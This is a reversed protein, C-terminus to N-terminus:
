PAEPACGGFHTLAHWTPSSLVTIAGHRGLPIAQETLEPVASRAAIRLDPFWTTVPATQTRIRTSARGDALMHATASGARPGDLTQVVAPFWAQVRPSTRVWRCAGTASWAIIACPFPELECFRIAASTLSTRFYTAVDIIAAADPEPSRVRARFSATPLMLHNAFVDAEYEHPREQHAARFLISCNPHAKLWIRHEDIVYHGLEHALTFVGQGADFRCHEANVYIHFDVGDFEILGDFSSGYDGQSWTLDPIAEIIRAPDVPGHGCTDLAVAEALAAIMQVRRETTVADSRPTTRTTM